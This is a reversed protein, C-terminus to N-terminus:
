LATPQPCGSANCIYPLQDLLTFSSLSASAASAPLSTNLPLISTISPTGTTSGTDSMSALDALLGTMNGVLVETINGSSFQVSTANVVETINGDRIVTGNSALEREPPRFPPSTAPCQRVDGKHSSAVKWPCTQDAAGPFPPQLYVSIEIAPPLSAMATDRKVFPFSSSFSNRKRRGRIPKTVATGGAAAAIPSAVCSLILTEAVSRIMDWSTVQRAKSSIGIACNGATKIIPGTSPDLVVNGDRIFEYLLTECGGIGPKGLKADCEYEVNIPEPTQPGLQYQWWRPHDYTMLSSVFRHDLANSARAIADKTAHKQSSQYQQKLSSSIDTSKGPSVNM